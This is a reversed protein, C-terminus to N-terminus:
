LGREQAARAAERLLAAPIRVVNEGDPVHLDGLESRDLTFGQVVLDGSEAVYVTPCNGGRCDMIEGGGPGGALQELGM